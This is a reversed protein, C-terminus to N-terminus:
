PTAGLLPGDDLLLQKFMTYDQDTQAGYRRAFDKAEAAFGAPDRMVAEQIAPLAPGGGLVSGRAHARALLRGAQDAFEVVNADTYDGSAIKSAIKATDAGNEYGNKSRVLLPVTGSVAWGTLRDLDPQSWLTRELRVTREGDSMDTVAPIRPVGRLIVPDDSEKVEAILDDDNSATPGEILIYWRLMPYSSVGSGLRRAIGAAGNKIALAGPPYTGADHVTKSWAVMAASLAAATDADVKDLETDIVGDAGPPALVGHQMVRTGNDITTYKDLESHSDGDSKQKNALSGLYAGLALDGTAGRGIEDVYGDIAAGALMAGFAEDHCDRGAADFAMAMRWVDGWFPGWTSADFDNWEVVMSGDARVFTGLNEPHPDGVIQVRADAETAFATSSAIPEGDALDEWFLGDTGRVYSFRREAMLALKGAVLEPEREIWRWNGAIIRDRLWQERSAAPDAAKSCGAALLAVLGLWQNNRM